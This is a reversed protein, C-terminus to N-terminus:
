RTSRKKATGLAYLCFVNIQLIDSDKVGMVARIKRRHLNAANVAVSMWKRNKKLGVRDPPEWFVMDSNQMAKQFRWADQIHQTRLLKWQQLSSEGEEDLKLSADKFAKVDLMCASYFNFAALGEAEIDGIVKSACESGGKARKTSLDKARRLESVQGLLWGAIDGVASQAVPPDKSSALALDHRFTQNTNFESILGGIDLSTLMLCPLIKDLVSAWLGCAVLLGGWQDDSSTTHTNEFRAIEIEIANM